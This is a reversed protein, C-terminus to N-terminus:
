AQCAVDLSRRIEDGPNGVLVPRGIAGHYGEYRPAVTLLVLENAQIRQFTSRGLIPRSHPGSAVITDIGTGEAGARRMAAEAEAAVEQETIGEQIVDVATNLGLEAIKYAYRIVEIEAPSKQAQLDCMPNEVDIWEAKPLAAKFAALVDGGDLGSWRSL